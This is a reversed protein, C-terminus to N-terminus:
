VYGSTNWILISAFHELLFFYRCTSGNGSGVELVNKRDSFHVSLQELIPQKNRDCSPPFVRKGYKNKMFSYEGLIDSPHVFILYVFEAM